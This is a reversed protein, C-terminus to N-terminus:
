RNFHVTAGSKGEYKGISTMGVWGELTDLQDVHPLVRLNVLHAFTLWAMNDVPVFAKHHDHNGVYEQFL